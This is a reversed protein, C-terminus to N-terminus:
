DDIYRQEAAAPDPPGDAGVGHPDAGSRPDEKEFRNCLNVLDNYAQADEATGSQEAKKRLEELEGTRIQALRKKGALIYMTLEKSYQQNLDFMQDLMAIDKMLTVQHGELVEAIKDVNAEAKAYQAKMEEVKHKSRQFFSFGKKEPQGVQKLELVLSSLADGVTGLDKTRVSSLASESFQAINKQAASGYQMVQTSDTIDIKAAFADVARREEETLM